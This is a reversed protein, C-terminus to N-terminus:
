QYIYRVALLLWITPSTMAKYIQAFKIVCVTCYFKKHVSKIFPDLLVTVEKETIIKGKKDSQVNSTTNNAFESFIFNPQINITTLTTEKTDVTKTKPKMSLDLPENIESVNNDYDLDIELEGEEEYNEDSIDCKLYEENALM